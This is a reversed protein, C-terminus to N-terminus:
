TRDTIRSRKTRGSKEPNQRLQAMAPPADTQHYRSVLYQTEGAFSALAIPSLAAYMYIKFFRGYVTLIM